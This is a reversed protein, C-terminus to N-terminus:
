APGNCAPAGAFPGVHACSVVCVVPMVVPGHYAVAHATFSTYVTSCHSFHTQFAQLGSSPAVADGYVAQGELIAYDVYILPLQLLWWFFTDVNLYSESREQLLHCNDALMGAQIHSLVQM